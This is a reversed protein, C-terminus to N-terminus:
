ASRGLAALDQELEEASLEITPFGFVPLVRLFDFYALRLLRAARGTSIDGRHRARCIAYTRLDAALDEQDQSILEDPLELELKM